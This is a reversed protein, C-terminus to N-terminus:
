TLVETIRIESVGVRYGSGDKPLSTIWLLVFRARTGPLPRLTAVQDGKRDAAVLRAADATAPAADAVRLEVKAGPASFGVRVTALPRSTGLDLLLGVGAKTGGFAETTYTSTPWTTDAFGDVANHVKDGNEQRDGAPDFDKVPIRTLDLARVKGAGPAPSETATVIEDIANPRPDLTGVATGLLWGAVGVGSVVGLALLWPLSRRLRSPAKPETSASTVARLDAVASDTADALATPSLLARERDPQMGRAVVDDLSRPVGALVQHPNLPRDGAMPAATLRGRPLGSVAEPWRTTVLAYLVCALARTDERLATAPAPHAAPGGHLAEALVADSLRVRGTPTVLVNGPHVRGHALGATHLATLADALQRVVDSADPAALAGVSRLHADLSEGEVWERILYAIERSRGRDSSLAADYVRVLGPHNVQGSLVAAALFPEAAERAAKNPTPVVRVAVTRALVEDHARWLEAPGGTTVVDRLTYRGAVVEGVHLGSAPDATTTV